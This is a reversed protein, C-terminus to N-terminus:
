LSEFEMVNKVKSLAVEKTIIGRKYLERLCKDMTYM